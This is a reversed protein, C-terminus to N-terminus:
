KGRQVLVAEERSRAQIDRAVRRDAGVIEITTPVATARVDVGKMYLPCAAADQFGRAAAFALHCRMHALLADARTGTAFEVRVGDAVDTIGVVPGLLPCAARTSAPFERCEAEEFKELAAAAAEHERAHASLQQARALHQNRTDYINADFYYGQPNNGGSVSLNPPPPATEAVKREAGAAASEKQAEARHAEASMDDARVAQNSQGCGLAGLGIMSTFLAATTRATRMM